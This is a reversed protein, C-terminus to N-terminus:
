NLGRRDIGFASKGVKTNLGGGLEDRVRELIEDLTLVADADFYLSSLPKKATSWVDDFGITSQEVSDVPMPVVELRSLRSVIASIQFYTEIKLDNLQERLTFVQKNISFWSLFRQWSSRDHRAAAILTSLELKLNLYDANRLWSEQSKEIEVIIDKRSGGHALVYGYHKKGEPEPDRGLLRQYIADVFQDNTVSNLDVHNFRINAELSRALDRVIFLKSTGHELLRVYHQLGESDAERGLLMQYASEVFAQDRMVLLEGLSRISGRTEPHFSDQTLTKKSERDFGAVLPHPPAEEDQDSTM